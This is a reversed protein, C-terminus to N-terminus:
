PEVQSLLLVICSLRGALFYTIPAVCPLCCTGVTLLFLLLLPVPLPFCSTLLARVQNGDSIGLIEPAVYQPSGCMTSLVTGPAFFKSLGFDAIKIASKDTKDVMLMNELKLDRHVIGVTTSCLSTLLDCQLCCIYSALLM